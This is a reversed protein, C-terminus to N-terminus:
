TGIAHFVWVDADQGLLNIEYRADQRLDGRRSLATQVLGRQSSLVVARGSPRLVRAIERFVGRYLRDLPQVPSTREGFPLNTAVADVSQSALPLRTADWKHLQRPKYRPGINAVAAALAVDDRDGGLLIGHPMIRDREILLTGAGCMPDLFVDDRRPQTLLIMAAAVSPRLSAPVHETKYDRHRMNADSLRLACTFDLGILNAWIEVEGGKKVAKWRNGGNREIAKEVSQQLDVRRYPQDGSRMRAIVRFSIKGRIRRGQALSFVSLAQGLTPASVVREYVHSLGEYGWPVQPIGRILFFVDEATHLRLLDRPHGGYRFMTLGNRQPLRKTTVLSADPFRASIEKWAVRELGPMTHVIFTGRAGNSPM